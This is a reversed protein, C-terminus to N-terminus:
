KSCETYDVNGGYDNLKPMGGELRILAILLLAVLNTMSHVYLDDVLNHVSVTILAAILGLALARDNTLWDRLAYSGQQTYHNVLKGPQILLLLKDRMRFPKQIAPRPGWQKSQVEKYRRNISLYSRGGAVFIALLFLLFAVLGILGAEAAINIYYNHAHGLSNVFITIMYQPYADPYNGIGVGLFPHDLFMNGGAIWHALREATSFDQAGPSTLSIRTLGLFRLIPDLTHASFRGDLYAEIGVLAAITLVGILARLRPLGVLIIFLIAVALAIEGGRSLSLYEVGGLVAVVGAVLLRTAWNRGFLFLAIAISLSMNMYGAFPNPQGFTGYVRLSADRVFSDPGLAFFAQSYGFIAQTVGALCILVVLTWVQRRTRLYQSGLLLLILFELWKILEKLSSSISIAVTTSLLMTGLLLLTAGVLYRPLTLADYDLPGVRQGPTRLTFGLLWGVALFGVLIDASNVNLGGLTITDLSGWPIAFPMLYLVVRPRVITWILAVLYLPVRVNWPQPDSPLVFFCFLAFLGGILGVLNSATAYTRLTYQWSDPRIHVSESTNIGPSNISM